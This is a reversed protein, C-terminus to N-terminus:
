AHLKAIIYYSLSQWFSVFYKKLFQRVKWLWSLCWARNKPQTQWALPHKILFSNRQRVGKQETSQSTTEPHQTEPFQRRRRITLLPGRHRGWSSTPPRHSSLFQPKPCSHPEAPHSRKAVRAAQVPSTAPVSM